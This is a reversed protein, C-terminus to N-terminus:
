RQLNIPRKNKAGSKAASDVGGRAAVFAQLAAQRRQVAFSSAASLTAAASSSSSPIGARIQVIVSDADISNAAIFQFPQEFDRFYTANIPSPVPSLITGYNSGKVIGIEFIQEPPFSERTGDPNVKKLIIAATDGPALVAPAFSMEITSPVLGVFIELRDKWTDLCFDYDQFVVLWGVLTGGADRIEDASWIALTDRGGVYVPETDYFFQMTDGSEAHGVNFRYVDESASFNRFFIRDHQEFRSLCANFFSFPSITVEPFRPILSDAVVSDRSVFSTILSAWPPLYWDLRDLLDYYIQLNARYPIVVGSVVGDSLVLSPNNEKDLLPRMGGQPVRTIKVTDRVVVQAAMEEAVLLFLVIIMGSVVFRKM